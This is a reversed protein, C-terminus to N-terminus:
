WFVKGSGGSFRGGFSMNMSKISSYGACRSHIFGQFDHSLRGAEVPSRQIDWWCYSQLVDVHSFELSCWIWAEWCFEQYVKPGKHGRRFAWGEASWTQWSSGLGTCLDEVWALQSHKTLDNKFYSSYINMGQKEAYPLFDRKCPIYVRGSVLM